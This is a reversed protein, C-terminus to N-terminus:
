GADQQRRHLDHLWTCAQAAVAPYRQDPLARRRCEASPRLRGRIGHRLAGRVATDYASATGDMAGGACETVSQNRAAAGGRGALARHRLGREADGVDRQAAGDGSTGCEAYRTRDEGAAGHAPLAPGGRQLRDPLGPFLAAGNDRIQERQLLSASVRPGAQQRDQSVGGRGVLLVSPVQCEIGLKQLRATYPELKAMNDAPLFTVKYGLEMIARMHAIAANSGADQDPTPVSDDIFYARRAVQREAEQEPQEGNFRHTLLTDKWRQYFKAHNIVQYRKMGPGSTDTGSSVGELHVIESAPQMVVRKGRARVRFALDTDEYYGPAFHEDFGGLERFMAREIMLAAGSVWDADRLYCFAPEHPDRGRGWNWGDGLRWMIGGAEQLSGDAFLLKSGAIGVNPVQEFTEVLEDLWGERVLTDNNLFLLYKGKAVAAGANCTGVFGLNVGNRVIRVAGAFILTSLMTEDDSCDDVVIIEFCRRCGTEIISKVCNYTLDFKNFVPIVISVVPEKVPKFWLPPHTYRLQNILERTRGGLNLNDILDIAPPAGASKLGDHVNVLDNLLQLLTTLPQALDESTTAVQSRRSCQGKWLASQM